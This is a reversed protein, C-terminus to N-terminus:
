CDATDETDARIEMKPRHEIEHQREQYIDKYNFTKKEDEM